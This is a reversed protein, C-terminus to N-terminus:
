RALALLEPAFKDAYIGLVRIDALCDQEAKPSPIPRVRDSDTGEVYASTLLSLDNSLRFSRAGQADTRGFIYGAGNPLEIFSLSLNVNNEPGASFALFDFGGSAPNRALGHIRAVAPHISMIFGRSSHSLEILLRIQKQTIQPQWKVAQPAPSATPTAVAAVEMVKAQDILGMDRAYEIVKTPQIGAQASIFAPNPATALVASTLM